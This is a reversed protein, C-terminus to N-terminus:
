FIDLNLISYLDSGSLPSGNKFASPLISTIYGESTSSIFAFSKAKPIFYLSICTYQISCIFLKYTVLLWGSRVFAITIHFLIVEVMGIQDKECKKILHTYM